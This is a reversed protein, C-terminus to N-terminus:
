FFLTLITRGEIGAGSLEELIIEHDAQDKQIKYTWNALKEIRKRNAKKHGNIRQMMFPSVYLCYSGSEKGRRHIEEQLTQFVMEDEVLERFAPHYPGAIMDGHNLGDNAQLGVRIVPIQNKRFLALIKSCRRVAEELALVSYSGELYMCELETNRIVLTPYIRVCAPKLNVFEWATHLMKSEDDGPLGIMMQLGLDIGANKILKVAQYVDQISHNRKSQELVEEDLSQVGLEIVRIPYASLFALIEEDIYDPRTSMRIGQLRYGEVYEKALDLYQKQIDLPLGTFSGGFFAIEVMRDGRTLLAAEIEQRVHEIELPRITGSISRQNCFVCDNECGLHPIFIPINMTKAM